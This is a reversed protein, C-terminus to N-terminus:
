ARSPWGGIRALVPHEAQWAARVVCPLYLEPWVRFAEDRDLWHQHDTSSGPELLLLLLQYAAARDVPAEFEYLARSPRTWICRFSGGELLPGTLADLDLAFAVRRM